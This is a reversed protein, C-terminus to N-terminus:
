FYILNTESRICVCVSVTVFSHLKLTHICGPPFTSQAHCSTWSCQPVNGAGHWRTCWQQLVQLWQQATPCCGGQQLGYQLSVSVSMLFMIVFVYYLVIVLFYYTSYTKWHDNEPENHENNIWKILSFAVFCHRSMEKFLSAILSFFCIETQWFFTLFYFFFESMARWLLNKLFSAAATNYLTVAVSSDRFLKECLESVAWTRDTICIEQLM